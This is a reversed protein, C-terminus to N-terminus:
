PRRYNCPVPDPRFSSDLIEHWQWILSDIPLVSKEKGDTHCVRLSSSCFNVFAALSPFTVPFWRPCPCRLWPWSGSALFVWLALNPSGKDLYIWINCTSLHERSHVIHMHFTDSIQSGGNAAAHCVNMAYSCSTIPVIKAELDAFFDLIMMIMMHQRISSLFLTNKQGTWCIVSMFGLQQLRWAQSFFISFSSLVSQPFFSRSHYAKSISQASCKTGAEQALSRSRFKLSRIMQRCFCSAFCASVGLQASQVGWQWDACAVCRQCFRNAKCWFLMRLMLASLIRTGCRLKPM